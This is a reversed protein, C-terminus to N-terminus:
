FVRWERVAAALAYLRQSLREVPKQVTKLWVVRLFLETILATIQVEKIIEMM